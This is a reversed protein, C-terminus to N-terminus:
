IEFTRVSCYRRGCVSQPTKYSLRHSKAAATSRINFFAIVGNRWIVCLNPDLVNDTSFFSPYFKVCLIEAVM